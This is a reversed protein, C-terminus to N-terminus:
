LTVIVMKIQQKRLNFKKYIKLEAGSDLTCEGSLNNQYFGTDPVSKHVANRGNFSTVELIHAERTGLHKVIPLFTRQLKRPKTAFDAIM